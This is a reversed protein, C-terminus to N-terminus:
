DRRSRGPICLVFLYAFIDFSKKKQSLSSLPQASGSPTISNSRLDLMYLSASREVLAALVQMRYLLLLSRATSM